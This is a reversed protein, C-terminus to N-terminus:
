SLGNRKIDKLWILQCKIYYKDWPRITAAKRVQEGHRNIHQLLYFDAGVVLSYPMMLTKVYAYWLGVCLLEDHDM